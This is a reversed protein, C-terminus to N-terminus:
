TVWARGDDERHLESADVARKTRCCTDFEMPDHACFIQIETGREARLTRLREQNNVRDRHDTDVFRQFLGLGVPIYPKYPDLQARHFYADGAHLIWGDSTHVAVGAHGKTHGVLPVMLVDDLGAIPHVADFGEFREGSTEHAEWKTDPGWQCERYRLRERGRRPGTIVDHEKKYLHVTAGPFDSIGGIHDLDAHTAVIHRVDSAAFGLARVQHLATEELELKPAVVTTFVLGLRHHPSAVDDTGLGTDVLILGEPSEILLCHCVLRGHGLGGQGHILSAPAPCLTGCNLHHIKM